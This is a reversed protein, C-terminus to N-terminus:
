TKTVSVKSDGKIKAIVKLYVHVLVAKCLLVNLGWLTLSM